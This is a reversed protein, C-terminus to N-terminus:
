RPRRWSKAMSILVMRSGTRPEIKRLLAQPSALSLPAKVASVSFGPFPHTAQISNTSADRGIDGHLEVIADSFKSACGSFLM